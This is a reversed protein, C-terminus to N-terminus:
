ARRVIQPNLRVLEGRPMDMKESEITNPFISVADRRDLKRLAARFRRWMKNRLKREAPDSDEWKFSGDDQIELRLYYPITQESERNGGNGGTFNKKM